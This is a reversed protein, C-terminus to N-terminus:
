APVEPPGHAVFEELRVGLRGALTHALSRALNEPRHPGGPIPGLAVRIRDVPVGFVGGALSSNECLLLVGHILVGSTRRAQACGLVKRGEVVLTEALRDEFCIPSRSGSGGSSPIPREAPVGCGLLVARFTEVFRDYLPRIGAAWPHYPPLVLSAALDGRHLVGTGGSCRKLIPIGERLCFEADIGQKGQGYGLVLVPREWSWTVLSPGRPGRGLLDEEM